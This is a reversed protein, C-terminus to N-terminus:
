FKPRIAYPNRAERGFTRLEPVNLVMERTIPAYPLDDDRASERWGSLRGVTYRSKGRRLMTWLDRPRGQFGHLAWKILHGRDDFHLYLKNRLILCPGRHEFKMEGLGEGVGGSLPRTTLIGDTSTHVVAEAYELRTIKARVLATIWAAVPPYFLSGAIMVRDDDEDPHRAIFKGYLSNSLLKFLQSEEPTTAARRRDFMELAYRGLDSMADHDPKWTVSLLDDPRWAPYLERLLRYEITTVALTDFAEGAGLPRFDHTYFIPARLTAPM